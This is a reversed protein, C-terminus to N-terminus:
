SIRVNKLNQNYNNARRRDLGDYMNQFELNKVWKRELFINSDNYMWDLFVKTQRNGTVNLYYINKNKPKVIQSTINLKQQLIDQIPTLVNETSAILVKGFKEGVYLCGDGDFYGRIFHRQLKETLFDPFTILFTKRQMCGLEHLRLSMKKSYIVLSAYDKYCYLKEKGYFINSFKKLIELDKNALNLAIQYGDTGNYADAYFFGLVYAKEETDIEDFYNENVLKHTRKRDTPQRISVNNQKLLKTITPYSCNYQIAIKMSSTGSEYLSCINKTDDELFTM